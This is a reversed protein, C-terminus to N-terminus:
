AGLLVRALINHQIENSGGYITAARSNLYKATPTLAYGPGVPPRNAGMGLAERQDPAAYPGLAEMALETVLQLLTSVTLKLRSAITDGVSKGAMLTEAVSREAHDLAQLQIDIACWRQRFAPDDLGEARAIELASDLMTKLRAAQAGAGREFELLYKAVSWGQNEDGVLNAAPVRVDDFFVQNIEHEGSISIIPRVTLGPADMPTLLFSIGAQPKVETDTRVLVFMWNAFHAHTTWMKSGSVVYHDDDRVARTQLSALDSGSQPESYGQCWYHEGSLMAPLFFAKQEPTGYKMLVPGCMQLGMAPLVPANARACEDAFIFRQMPTWGPGGYEKPWSPAVWGKAHLVKHWRRCLDGESFVGAQRAQAARIDPSLAAQLFARVEERFAADAHAADM